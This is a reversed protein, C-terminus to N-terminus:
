HTTFYMKYLTQGEPYYMMNQLMKNRSIIKTMQKFEKFKNKNAKNSKINRAPHLEYTRHALEASKVFFFHISMKFTAKVLVM